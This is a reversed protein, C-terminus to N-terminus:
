GDSRARHRLDDPPEATDLRLHRRGGLKGDANPTARRPWALDRASQAVATKDLGPRHPAREVQEGGLVGSREEREDGGSSRPFPRAPLAVEAHGGRVPIRKAERDALREVTLRERSVLQHRRDDGPAPKAM